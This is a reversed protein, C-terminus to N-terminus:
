PSFYIFLSFISIPFYRLLIYLIHSPQKREIKRQSDLEEEAERATERERGEEERKGEKRRGKTGIGKIM